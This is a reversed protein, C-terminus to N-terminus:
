RPILMHEPQVPQKTTISGLRARLEFSSARLGKECARSPGLEFKQFEWFARGSGLELFALEARGSSSFFGARDM